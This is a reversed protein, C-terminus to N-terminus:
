ASGSIDSMPTKAARLDADLLGILESLGQELRDLTDVDLMQLADPLVGAYPGPTRRLVAKGQTTVNLQVSRRDPGERCAEILGLQTLNRAIISATPQRVNLEAALGNVSIGSNDRVVSLAWVQAGSVGAKREVQQFHTKVANFIIRFQQLVRIPQDTPQASAAPKADSRRKSPNNNNTKM